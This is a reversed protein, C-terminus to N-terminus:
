KASFTNNYCKLRKIFSKNGVHLSFSFYFENPLEGCYIDIYKKGVDPYITHMRLTTTHASMFGDDFVAQNDMDLVLVNSVYFSESFDAYIRIVKANNGEARLYCKILNEINNSSM